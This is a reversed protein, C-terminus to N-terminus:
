RVLLYYATKVYENRNDDMTFLIIEIEKDVEGGCMQRNFRDKRTAIVHHYRHWVVGVRKKSM